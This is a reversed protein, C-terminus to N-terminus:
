LSVLSEHYIHIDKDYRERIKPYGFTGSNPNYVILRSGYSKALVVGNESICLPHFSLLRLTSVMEHPILRLKTWSDQIGYNKMLWVVSNVEDSYCLCLCNSLVDLVYNYRCRDGDLQPPLLVEGYTENKVDFSIIHDEDWTLWNLTGSVFKGLKTWTYLGCFSTKITTWFKTGFTHVQTEKPGCNVLVKYKDNVHDYGFGYHTDPYPVFFLDTPPSSKSILRTSPNWLKFCGDWGFLCLLGNCSGIIFRYKTEVMFSLTKLPASPHEFLSQVSYMVLENIEIESGALYVLQQRSMNTRSTNLHAKVFQPSSILTKWFKCVCKFRLLSKVPLKLLIEIIMDEALLRTPPPRMDTTEHM